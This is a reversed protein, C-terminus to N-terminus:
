VLQYISGGHGSGKAYLKGSRKIVNSRTTITLLRNKLIVFVAEGKQLYQCLHHFPEIPQAMRIAQHRVVVVQHHFRGVSIQGLAHTLEIAHIRLCRISAM